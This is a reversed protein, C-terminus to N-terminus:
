GVRSDTGFALGSVYEFEGLQGQIYKCLAKYCGTPSPQWGCQAKFFEPFGAILRHMLWEKAGFSLTM